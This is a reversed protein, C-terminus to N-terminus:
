INEHNLRKGAWEEHLFHAIYSLDDEYNVSPTKLIVKSDSRTDYARYIQTRKSAHLEAEIRYGDLIMGSDLPPPFPLNDHKHLVEVQRPDPLSEIKVIQCTLNDDSDNAKAKIVITEAITQLDDSKELLLQKIGKDDIFDHVGDTTLVFIDGTSVSIKLHDVELLPEIGMARTLYNTDKNVWVRHDRTIQELGGDRFRYIRSDGIHFIHATNSKLLLISLTSVMGKNSGYQSQGQSYLWSNTASLIQQCSKTVTWSDPTSYYDSLFGIICAHSARKGADSSSMGDAIAIVIGKYSLQPEQPESYGFFDENDAKIGQDSYQGIAIKLNEITM